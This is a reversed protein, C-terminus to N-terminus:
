SFAVFSPFFRPLPPALSPTPPPLSRRLSLPLLPSRRPSLPLPSRRLSLALRVVLPSALISRGHHSSRSLRFARRHQRGLPSASLCVDHSAVYRSPSARVAWARNVCLRVSPPPLGRGNGDTRELASRSSPFTTMAVVYMCRPLRGGALSSAHIIRPRSRRPPTVPSHTFAHTHTHTHTHIHRDPPRRCLSTHRSRQLKQRVLQAHTLTYTRRERRAIAYYTVAVPPRLTSSFFYGRWTQHSHLFFAKRRASTENNM